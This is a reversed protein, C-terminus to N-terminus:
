LYGVRDFENLALIAHSTEHVAEDLEEWMFIGRWTFGGTGLQYSALIEALDSLNSAAAHEGAQPDYDEGATALGLVAGALGLVDAVLSRDLEDIEAKVGTIWETTGAGIRYASCLGLGLQWAALNGANPDRLAQVYSTTSHNADGIADHYTGAALKDYFNTNVYDVCATGGLISDLEVALAGDAVTFTDIKSLLRLKSRQLAALMNADGTQRYAQALGMAVPAFNVDDSGANPDGDDLQDWDWGGDNNQLEVLREGGSAMAVAPQGLSVSNADFKTQGVVDPVAVPQGLSVLLDIGTGVLVTTGGVPIQLIVLGAAAAAHYHYTVTGVTLGAAIIDSYANPEPIGVVDPVVPQGLSVFLEVSSRIPVTAGGVPNQSIVIGAAVTDSHQYIVEAVLGIASIASNADAETQNVVDPAVVAQGLSVILDVASGVPVMTGGAPDQSIVLDAAVTDSYDYTVTGVSLGNVASITLIAEAETQEVVDPVVVPTGLSVVLDVPSGIPVATGGTPDQSIVLGAPVVVSFQETVTVAGMTLNAAAIASNAEALTMDALNPVIPQGRSVILDVASGVGAATEGAPSQDIVSGAGVTDSYQYSVEGILFGSAVIASNADTQTMGVVDPVIVGSVVIDVPSGIPVATGATPNQSIVEGLPVTDNYEYVIVGTTLGVATISSNADTEGQGVIDPVIIPQGLSVVLDVPSGVSAITGPTPDQSIVVWPPITDNYDYTVTGVVLSNAVIASNADTETLGVVDPVVPPGQSIVIDVPWYFPMETGSVPDQSIVHGAPITDSHGDGVAGLTLGAGIIALNADAQTMGAVDPVIPMGVAAVLAWLAEGTIENDEDDGGDYEPWGGSALQTRHLYIGADSIETLYGIHEFEDLALLAYATEHIREDVDEEWFRKHWTFGGSDLQYGALIDALDALSSAAVHEGAQPDYDEGAAALGLVAGALGIVDHGASGDLEDIEAKVGDLWQTTNAGIVYASYLGLGLDWAAHNPINADSWRDRVTQIYSNTDHIAESYADYYAGAALKNYFNTTVYDACDTGGLIIDLEVAVGGDTVAFNDTKSLLFAKAKQLSTLINPEDTIHYAEALGMAASAFVEPDSGSNPDGDDLPWDWGGDNNQLEVLRDAGLVIAELPPGLSVWLDVPSGAPLETGYAPSQGTVIGAAVADSYVYTSSGIVLGAAALTSNADAKYMWVVDPVVALSVTLDVPSGVSVTTGGVPNQILVTGAPVTDNRVHTITGITLTVAALASNADPQVMGVVDPVTPKGLSVVLDVNSGILVTTGGVPDQSIVIEAAVTDSYKYSINGPILAVAWIASSADAETM